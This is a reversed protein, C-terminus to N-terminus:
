CPMRKKSQIGLPIVLTALIIVIYLLTSTLVSNPLIEGGVPKPLLEGRHCKIMVYQADKDPAFDSENVPPEMEYHAKFFCNFWRTDTIVVWPVGVEIYNEMMAGQLGDDVMRNWRGETWSYLSTEETVMEIIIDEGIRHEIYYDAGYNEPDGTDPYVDMYFRYEALEGDFNLLTMGDDWEHLEMLFFLSYDNNAAFVAKIDEEPYDVGEDNKRDEVLHMISHWDSPDGDVRINRYKLSGYELVPVVSSYVVPIFVTFICLIVLLFVQKSKMNFVEYTNLTSKINISPRALHDNKYAVGKDSALYVNAHTKFGLYNDSSCRM